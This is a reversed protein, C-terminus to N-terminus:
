ECGCVEGEEWWGKDREDWQLGHRTVTVDAVNM